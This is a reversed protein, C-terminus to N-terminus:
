PMGNHNEPGARDWQELHERLVLAVTEHGAATWHDDYISAGDELRLRLAETPDVLPIDLRDCTEGLWPRWTDRLLLEGRLMAENWPVYFVFFYEGRQRALDRWHRLIRYGLEKAHGAYSNPWNVALTQPTPIRGDLESLGGPNGRSGEQSALLVLRSHLLQALRSRNRIGRALRVWLPRSGPEQGPLWRSEFGPPTPTLDAYPKLSGAPGLDRRLRYSSDGPDNEVFVYVAVDIDYRSAMIRYTTFAHFTGWGGIGFGLPELHRVGVVTGALRRFFVDQLPVQVSEVYSDGFFGVRLTDPPKIVAHNVDLFGAANPERKLYRAKNFILPGALVNMQLDSDFRTSGYVGAPLIAPVLRFAAEILLLAIIGTAAAPALNGAASRLRNRWTAM